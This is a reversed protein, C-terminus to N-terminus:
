NNSAEWGFRLSKELLVGDSGELTVKAGSERLNSSGDISLVWAEETEEQESTSEDVLEVAFDEQSM